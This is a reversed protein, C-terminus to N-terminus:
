NAKGKKRQRSGGSRGGKSQESPARLMQVPNSAAKGPRTELTLQKHYKATPDIPKSQENFSQQKEM